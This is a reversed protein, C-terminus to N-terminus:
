EVVQEENLLFRRLLELNNFLVEEVDRNREECYTIIDVHTRVTEDNERVDTILWNIDSLERDKSRHENLSPAIFKNHFQEIRLKHLHDYWPQRKIEQINRLLQNLFVNNKCLETQSMVSIITDIDVAKEKGKRQPVLGLPIVVNILQLLHEILSRLSIVCHDFEMLISYNDPWTTKLAENSYEEVRKKKYYAKKRKLITLRNKAFKYKLRISTLYDFCQVLEHGEKYNHVNKCRRVAKFLDHITEEVKTRKM